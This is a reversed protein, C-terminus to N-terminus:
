FMEAKDILKRLRRIENEIDRIQSKIHEEDGDRRSEITEMLVKLSSVQTRLHSVVMDADPFYIDHEVFM